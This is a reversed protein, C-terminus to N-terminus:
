DEMLKILGYGVLCGAGFALVCIGVAALVVIGGDVSEIESASLCRISTNNVSIDNM